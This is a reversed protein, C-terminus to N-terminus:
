PETREWINTKGLFKLGKVHGRLFLTGDEEMKIFGAYTKGNRSNYVEGDIWKDNEEDFVFNSVVNLGILENKALDEDNNHIDKRPQGHEDNPELLWIIKGSYTGDASKYIEVKADKEPVMWTGLIVDPDEALLLSPFTFAGIFLALMFPLVAKKM